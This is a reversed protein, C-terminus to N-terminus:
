AMWASNYVEEGSKPAAAVTEAAPAAEPESEGAIYVQGVPKINELVVEDPKYDSVETTLNTAIIILFIAFVALAGM